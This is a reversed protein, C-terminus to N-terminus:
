NIMRWVGDSQRCATSLVQQNRGDIIANTVYKRCTQGSQNQYPHNPTVQYRTGIAPDTWSVRRNDPAYELVQGVCGQDVRDMSQGINGGVITGIITGGIIAATKGNGRGITSGVAAGTAGGLVQGLTARNCTGRDVGYPNVYVPQTRVVRPAREYGEDDDDQHHKNRYGHAPAWPPPDAFANGSELVPLLLTSLVVLLVSKKFANHFANNIFEPTSTNM